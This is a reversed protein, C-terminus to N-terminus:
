DSVTDATLPNVLDCIALRPDSWTAAIVVPWNFAREATCNPEISAAEKALILVLLTLM